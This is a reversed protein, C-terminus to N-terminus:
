IGIWDCVFFWNKSKILSIYQVNELNENQNREGIKRQWLEKSYDNIMM